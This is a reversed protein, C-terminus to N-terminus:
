IIVTTFLLSLFSMPRVVKTFSYILRDIINLRNEQEPSHGPIKKLPRLNRRCVSICVLLLHWALRRGAGSGSSFNVKLFMAM